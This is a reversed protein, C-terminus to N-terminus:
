FQFRIPRGDYLNNGSFKYFLVSIDKHLNTIPLIPDEYIHSQTIIIYADSVNLFPHSLYFTDYNYAM